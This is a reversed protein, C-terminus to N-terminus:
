EEQQHSQIEDKILQELKGQTLEGYLVIHQFTKEGYAHNAMDTFIIVETIVKQVQFRPQKKRGRKKVEITELSPPSSGSEQLDDIENYASNILTRWDFDGAM